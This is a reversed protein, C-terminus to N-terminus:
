IAPTTVTVNAVVKVEVEEKAQLRSLGTPTVELQFDSKSTTASATGGVLAVGNHKVLFSGVPLVETGVTSTLTNLTVTYNNVNSEDAIKRVDFSELETPLMSLVGDTTREFTLVADDLSGTLSNIYASHGAAVIPPVTGTWTLTDAITDIEAEAFASASILLSAAIITKKM